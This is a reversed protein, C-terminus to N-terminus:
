QNYWWARGDNRILDEAGKPGWSNVKYFELWTDRDECHKIVTDMFAWASEVEDWRTFRSQDGALADLLLSEYAEPSNYSLDCTQCFDMAVENMELTNGPEKINFHFVVGEEPQIKIVLRNPAEKAKNKCLQGSKFEIMIYAEKKKLMKGTRLYVPVGTWEELNVELKLASFTETLSEPHVGEINRYGEYQGLVVNKHLEDHTMVKLSKFIETKADRIAETDNVDCFRMTTLALIQLLHNQIMDRLAGSKDYYGARNDVGMDESVTIQIHDIYAKNWVANFVANKGRIMLINQTMEKALYHDIRYIQTEQFYEKIGQNLTRATQLDSGFPKEIVVRRWGKESRNMGLVGLNGTVIEFYQASTALYYLRNGDNDIQDLCNKLDTYALPNNMDMQYYLITKCFATFDSTNFSMSSYTQISKKVLSEYSQEFDEDKNFFAKRGVAVIHFRFAQPNAKFINYLGPLLKRKALDGTAGFLVITKWDNKQDNM